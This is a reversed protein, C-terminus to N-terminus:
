DHRNLYEVAKLLIDAKDQFGGLSANCSRCLLGRAKGNGHNHDVVLVSALESEHRDCINCRGQCDTYMRNYDEPKLGYQKLKWKYKHGVLRKKAEETMTSRAVKARCKKSCFRQRVVGSRHLTMEIGCGECDRKISMLDVSGTDRLRMYHRQCMDFKKVWVADNCGEISCKKRTWEGTSRQTKRPQVDM